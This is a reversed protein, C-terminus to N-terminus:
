LHTRSCKAESTVHDCTFGLCAEWRLFITIKSIVSVLGFNFLTLTVIIILGANAGTWHNKASLLFCEATM